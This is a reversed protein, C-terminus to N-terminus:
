VPLHAHKVGHDLMISTHQISVMNGLFNQAVVVDKAIQEKLADFSPFHKEDRIKNHFHVEVYKGYIDANFNFLHVELLISRGDITPRTGVNAVGAIEGDGIGTMTVAFVGEIPSNKRFMRINATPFGISRGRKEGSVIRGCISYRRGLLNKAHELRGTELAQRISTSSVREGNVRYSQTKEVVFGNTEGFSQLLSFDGVRKKGFRFDDGVVLYRTNLSDILINGVFDKPSLGALKKDFRLIVVYDVPLKKLHIIKERLRTLRPPAKDLLFYEMPQPEFLLIAIPIRLRKASLALNEIVIQHGRHVGDFNGITVACGETFQKRNVSGRIVQM